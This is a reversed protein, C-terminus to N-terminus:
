ILCTGQKKPSYYYWSGIFYNGPIPIIYIKRWRGKLWGGGAKAKEIEEQVVFVGSPDKYDFQNSGIFCAM